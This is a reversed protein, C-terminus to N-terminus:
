GRGPQWSPRRGGPWRVILRCGDEGADEPRLLDVQAAPHVLAGFLRQVAARHWAGHSAAVLPSGSIAICMPAASLLRVRGLGTFTWGNALIARGLLRGAWRAPLRRLIAQALGPIRRALVYDATLRGAQTAVSEADRVPLVRWLAAHLVAADGEPVMTEPPRDLWDRHGDFVEAAVGRGYPGLAAALQIVANPGVAGETSARM